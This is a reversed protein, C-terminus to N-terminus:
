SVVEPALDSISAWISAVPEDRVDSAFIDVVLGDPQVKLQVTGRGAVDIYLYQADSNAIDISFPTPILVEGAREDAGATTPEPGDEALERDLLEVIDAPLYARPDDYGVEASNPIQEVGDKKISLIVNNHLGWVESVVDYGGRELVGVVTETQVQGDGDGFGFKDFAEEWQWNYEHGCNDCTSTPM